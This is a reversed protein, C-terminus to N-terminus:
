LSNRSAKNVTLSFFLSGKMLTRCSSKKYSANTCGQLVTDYLFLTSDCHTYLIALLICIRFHTGSEFKWISGYPSCQHKSTCKYSKRSCLVSVFTWKSTERESSFMAMARASPNTFFNLSVVVILVFLICRNLAFPLILFYSM